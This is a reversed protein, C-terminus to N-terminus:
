KRGTRRRPTARRASPPEPRTSKSYYERMPAFYYERWGARYQEAQGKPIQSHILTVRTGTRADDFLVELRSDPSGSPFETTRWSQVIRRSPELAITRGVIYGDWATFRGGVKAQIRAKGGTFGSHEKSSVWAKYLRERNAPLVASVKFSTKM